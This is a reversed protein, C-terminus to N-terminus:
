HHYHKIVVLFYFLSLCYYTFNLNDFWKSESSGEDKKKTINEKSSCKINRSNLHMNKGGGWVTIRSMALSKYGKYKKFWSVKLCM